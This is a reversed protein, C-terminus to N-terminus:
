LYTLLHFSVYIPLSSFQLSLSLPLFSPLIGQFISPLRQDLSPPQLRYEVSVTRVYVSCTHYRSVRKKEV